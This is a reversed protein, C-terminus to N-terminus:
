KNGFEDIGSHSVELARLIAISPMNRSFGDMKPKEVGLLNDVSLKIGSFANNFPQKKIFDSIVIGGFYAINIRELGCEDGCYLTQFKPCAM